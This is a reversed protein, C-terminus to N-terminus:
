GKADAAARQKLAMKDIKGIPLLPLAPEIVFRKPIKYNALRARCHRELDAALDAALGGADIRAHGVVYAVGVEQWLPDPAAVVAAMAVDPHDELVMEIERPYVNYGGSKYMEKLRGAIRYNGDPRRVAIDGTRFYGDATLAEATAAPLRWYGQLNFPSRVQIEGADGPPADRGDPTVLRIEVGPMAAGVSNMLADLDRSPPLATSVLTETMGYNTALNPALPMLQRILPEPAAAGSWVILQVSSLDYAAFDPLALQMQFTSPVSGWLTVREREILAMAAAPDFQEMFVLTGGAALVPMSVDAVCAAHNIPFYNLMVLPSVPWIRNQAIACDVLARHRLLAGKPRGTSGSTYVILCPDDGGIAAGAADHHAPGVADGLREFDDRSLFGDLPPRPEPMDLAVITRLSPTAAALARIDTGFDRDGIRTRTLLVSPESDAMVYKLEDLQYRPNLGVWIAGISATALFCVLFDPNPPSLTAVRDGPRVGRALLGRAYREIRAQLAAYSLRTTGAAGACAAPTAQAWHAVLLDVRRINEPLPM